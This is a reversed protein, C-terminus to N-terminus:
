LKFNVEQIKSFYRVFLNLYNTKIGNSLCGDLIERNVLLISSLSISSAGGMLMNVFPRELYRMKLNLLKFIRCCIEFDGAIKLDSRFGGVIRYIDARIFLSPHAPMFGYKLKNVSFDKSKYYRVFKGAKSEYIVDGYVLDLQGDDFEKVIDSILDLSHFKDDSNLFCIIDGGAKALGKNMADYIGRDPESIVLGSRSKYGDILELTKDRSNGDVIIHEINPYTQLNVSELTRKITKEANFCVTIVSVKKM